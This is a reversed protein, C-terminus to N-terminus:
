RITWVIYGVHMRNGYAMLYVNYKHRNNTIPLRRSFVQKKSKRFGHPTELTYGCDINQAFIVFIDNKWGLIIMKYFEFIAAYQMPMIQM